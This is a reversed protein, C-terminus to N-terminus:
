VMGTEGCSDCPIWVGHPSEHGGKGACTRCTSSHRLMLEDITHVRSGSQIAAAIERATGFPISTIVQDSKDDRTVKLYAGDARIDFELGCFLIVRRVADYFQAEGILHLHEGSASPATIGAKMHAGSRAPLLVTSGAVAAKIIDRRKFM